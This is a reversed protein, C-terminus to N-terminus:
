GHNHEEPLQGSHVCRRLTDPEFAAPSSSWRWHRPVASRLQALNARVSRCAQESPFLVGDVQSLAVAGPVLVEAQLDTPAADLHSPARAYSRQGFVVPAYMAEFAAATGPVATGAAANRPSLLVGPRDLLDINLLLAVWDPYARLHRRGQAQRLYYANPYEISCCTMEPHRDYRELDTAEFYARRDDELDAVPRVAQDDIIPPLNLAPTFHVLRTVGRSRALESLRTM